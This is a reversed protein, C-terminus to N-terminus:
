PTTELIRQQIYGFFPNSRARTYLNSPFTLAGWEGVMQVSGIQIFDSPNSGTSFGYIEDDPPFPLAVHSLSYFEEPWAMGLPRTNFKTQHPKRSQASISESWSKENGIVTMTYNRVTSNVLESLLLDHRPSVFFELVSIRNVDFLVLESGNSPLRDYLRSILDRTIVTSDVLSQFTLVPPMINIAGSNAMRRLKGNIADTIKASQDAANMPFSNYKHPDYEPYIDQWQSKRFFKLKGLWQYIKGFRALGSVGLMPSILFLHNPIRLSTDNLSNLTYNLALSGGNSYGLIYFPMDPALHATVDAAGIRVTAEWDRWDIRSLEGPTTGHGPMRLNLVYYGKDLFMQTFHRLSYPSDTMGHLLLIGGRITGPSLVESRNWNRGNREPFSRSGRSFRNLENQENLEVRSNIKQDLEQFLHDENQLYEELTNVGNGARFESELEVTHWIELDAKNRAAFAGALILTVFVILAANLLFLLLKLVQRFIWHTMEIVM